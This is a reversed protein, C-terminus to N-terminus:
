GIKQQLQALMVEATKRFITVLNDVADSREQAPPFLLGFSLWEDTDLPRCLVEDRFILPSLADAITIGYGEAVLACALMTNAVKVQSPPALDYAAFLEEVQEGILLNSTIRVFQEGQLEAPPVRDFRALRHDPSMVVMPPIRGLVETRLDPNSAPLPGVGLDFQNGAVSREMVRRTDANVVVHMEPHQKLFQATAPIAIVTGLRPIANVKIQHHTGERVHQVIEPVRELNELMVQAERYFALGERTPILRQKNRHFLQLGLEHELVSLQRSLASNSTNMKEAAVRLTGLQMVLNFARLGKINM